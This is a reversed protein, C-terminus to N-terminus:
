FNFFVSGLVTRGQEFRTGSFASNFNIVEREDFINIASLRVGGVGFITNPASALSLNVRMRSNRSSEESLVSSALGSGYYLDAGVVAANSFTYSLGASLTHRQDHDNFEEVPEGTNDFGSPKATTRAYAVYGGVGGEKAPMLDYSFEFGHVMARELNVSTFVGLQTSPILLGTDVQDEIEKVYYSLKVNQRPTIEKEVSGEYQHVREPKIAEGLVAGQSLPPAIFLRNYSARALWTPSFAYSLNVRPSLQTDNVGRGEQDQVVSYADFRLGYNATFEDTVRFTDQLYSGWTYGNSRVKLTPVATGEPALRPDLDLLTELARQSAPILQYSDNSSEDIYQGGIKFTHRGESATISGAIQTHKSNRKVTPNYEISSDSPLNDLDVWPNDNLTDLKSKDAGVSLLSSVSSGFDHRWQLVGFSNEDKQYIDQGALDQSVIGRAAAEAASLEGGFGYGQGFPAYKDPLGSRNAVDTRAPSGSLTLSVKDTESLVYDFKSLLTASEGHNHATQNRPQPAELANDTERVSGSLFYSIRREQNGKENPAGIAEGVQGGVSFSADKTGYGGAGVELNQFPKVTGSRVTTNLIAAGGAYEPAFGGTMIELNNLAEPDLLPGFRGQAAGGLQFGQIYLSTASHEGRPHVQNASDPVFGPNSVLLGSLQQPNRASVPFQENFSRNRRASGSTDAARLLSKESRVKITTEIPDLTITVASVTDSSVLVERVSDQFQPASVRLSWKRSELLNSTVVGKDETVLVLDSREQALDHITIKAGPIPTGSDGNRVTIQLRGVVDAFVPAVSFFPLATAFLSSGIARVLFISKM